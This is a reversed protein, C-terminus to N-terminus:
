ARQDHDGVVTLSIRARLGDSALSVKTTGSACRGNGTTPVASRPGLRRAGKSRTAARLCSFM